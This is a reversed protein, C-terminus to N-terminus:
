FNGGALAYSTTYIMTDHLNNNTGGINEITNDKEDAISHEGEDEDDM